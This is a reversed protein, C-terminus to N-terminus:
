VFTSRHLRGIFVDAHLEVHIVRQMPQISIAQCTPRFLFATVASSCSFCLCNSCHISKMTKWVQSWKLEKHTRETTTQLVLPLLCVYGVSRSYWISQVSNRDPLLHERCDVITQWCCQWHLVVSLETSQKDSILFWVVTSLNYLSLVNTM